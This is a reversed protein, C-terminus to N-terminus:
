RQSHYQIEYLQRGDKNQVNFTAKEDITSVFGKFWHQYAQTMIAQSLAAKHWNERQLHHDGVWLIHNANEELIEDSGDCPMGNLYYNQMIKYIQGAKSNVDDMTQFLNQLEQRAATGCSEGHKYFVDKVLTLGEDGMTDVLDKIFTAERVEATAIEKHLWGHINNHDIITKLPVEESIPEGYMSTVSEYLESGLGDFHVDAEKLLLSERQIVLRIKRYLWYHIHGLFASM